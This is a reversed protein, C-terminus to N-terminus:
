KNKGHKSTEIDNKWSKPIKWNRDGLKAWVKRNNRIRAEEEKAEREKEQKKVRAIRVQECAQEFKPKQSNIYFLNGVFLAVLTIIVISVISKEKKSM